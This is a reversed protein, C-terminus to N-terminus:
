DLHKDLLRPRLVWVKTTSRSGNNSTKFTANMNFCGLLRMLKGFERVSYPRFQTKCWRLFSPSFLAITKAGEVTTEYPVRRSFAKDKNKELRCESLYMDIYELLEGEPSSEEGGGVEVALDLMTQAINEWQPGKRAKLMVGCYAALWNRFATQTILKDATGVEAEGQPTTIAFIPPSEMKKTIGLVKVGLSSTLSALLEKRKEDGIECKGTAQREAQFTEIAQTAEDRGVMSRAKYLTSAYYDQRDLKQNYGYKSRHYLLLDVIEQDSWGAYVCFCSLSMDWGSPSADSLKREHRWTADFDPNNERLAEFKDLDPQADMRLTFNYTKLTASGSSKRTKQKKERSQEPLPPLVEDLWARSVVNRPEERVLSVPLPEDGKFNLTGPVRLIRALDWTSDLSFGDEELMSRMHEQWRHSLEEAEKWEDEHTFVWPEDLCWYAHFGGGSHVVFTPKAPMADIYALASDETPPLNKKKHGDKGFDIDAWMCVIGLADKAKCRQRATLHKPALSLGFYVDEKENVFQQLQSATPVKAHLSLRRTPATWIQIRSGSPKGKFMRSLFTKSQAEPVSIPLVSM